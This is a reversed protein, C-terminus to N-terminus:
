LGGLFRGPNLVGRPDFRAKLVRMVPLAAPPEGFVDRGQRAWLPGSELLFDGGGARAAGQAARWAADAREEDATAPLEFRALLLGTGPHILRVAGAEGLISAAAPMRSPLATVRFRLSAAGREGAHLDRLRELAGAEAARAASRKALWAAGEEVVPADGALEVLLLFGDWRPAAPELERTLTEDLLAAVRVGPRRAIELGLTCAEEAAGVWCSLLATSTPRPRLRIWAAEIVGLTGFAGVHLKALDYGTVNKVVRGGCRTRTGDGLVVDLGLVADRPQGFGPHRPGVAAAALVGGLTSHSGPPDLPLEWGTGELTERLASLSTGGRARLVGEDPEFEEVGTLARTSLVVDGARPVNGTGLRSGGGRVIAALGARHLGAVAAALATGDGPLLTTELKRGEVEVPEHKRAVDAPLEACLKELASGVDM